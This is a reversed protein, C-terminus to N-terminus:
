KLVVKGMSEMVRQELEELRGTSRELGDLLAAYERGAEKLHLAEPGNRTAFRVAVDQLYRARERLAQLTPSRPEVDTAAGLEALLPQFDQFRGLEEVLAKRVRPQVMADTLFRSSVGLFSDLLERREQEHRREEERLRRVLPSRVGMALAADVWGLGRAEKGPMFWLYLAGLCALVERQRPEFQLARLLPRAISAAEDPTLPRGRPVALHAMAVAQLFFFGRYLEPPVPLKDREVAPFLYEDATAEDVDPLGPPLWRQHFATIAELTQAYQGERYVILVGYADFVVAAAAKQEESLGEVQRVLGLGERAEAFKGSRLNGRVQLLRSTVLAVPVQAKLVGLRTVEDFHQNAGTLDGRGLKEEALGLLCVSRNHETPLEVDALKGATQTFGELAAAHERQYGQLYALLYRAEAMRPALELLKDLDARAGDLLRKREQHPLPAERGVDVVHHIACYARLFLLDLRELKDLEEEAVRRAATLGEQFRGVSAAAALEDLARLTPPAVGAGGEREGRKRRLWGRPLLTELDGLVLLLVFGGLTLLSMVPLYWAPLPEPQGALGAEPPAGEGRTAALLRVEAAKAEEQLRLHEARLEALWEEHSPRAPSPTAASPLSGGLALGLVAALVLAVAGVRAYSPVLGGHREARAARLAVVLQVACLAVFLWMLITTLLSM